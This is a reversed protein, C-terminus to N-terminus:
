RRLLDISDNIMQTDSAINKIDTSALENIITQIKELEDSIKQFETLQELIDDLSSKVQSTDRMIMLVNPPIEDIFKLKQSINDLSQKQGMDIGIIKAVASNITSISCILEGENWWACGEQICACKLLPCIVPMTIWYDKHIITIKNARLLSSPLDEREILHFSSLERGQSPPLYPYPLFFVFCNQTRVGPMLLFDRLLLDDILMEDSPSILALQGL